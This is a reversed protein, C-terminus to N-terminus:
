VIQKKITDIAIACIIFEIAFISSLKFISLGLEFMFPPSITSQYIILMLISIICLISCFKLGKKLIHLATKDLNKFTNKIMSIFDKLM